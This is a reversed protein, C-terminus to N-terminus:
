NGRRRPNSDEEDGDDPRQRRRNGDEGGRQRGGRGQGGRGQGGRGQGGRGQAGGRDGGRGGRGFQQTEFEFADGMMKEIKSESVVSALAEVYLERRLEAMRKQLKESVGEMAEKLEDEEDDDLEVDVAALAAVGRGQSVDYQFKLEAFRNKQKSTLVDLVEERAEKNAKAMKKALPAMTEEREETSMRFVDRFDIDLDQMMKRVDPGNRSIEQLEEIQDEDLDLEKKIDNRVAFRADGGGSILGGLLGGGGRGFGGGIGGGGGGGGGRNGRGGGGGPQAYASMCLLAILTFVLSAQRFRQIRMQKERTHTALGGFQM